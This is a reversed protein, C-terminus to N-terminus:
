NNANLPKLEEIDIPNIGFVNVQIAKNMENLIKSDHGNVTVTVTGDESYSYIDCHQRTSKIRYRLWPKLKDAMDKIIKPKGDMWDNFEKNNM